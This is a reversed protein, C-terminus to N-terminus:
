AVREGHELVRARRYHMLKFDAGSGGAGGGHSVGVMALGFRGASKAWRALSITSMSVPWAGFSEALTGGAPM